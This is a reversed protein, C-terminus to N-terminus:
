VIACRLRIRDASKGFRASAEATMAAVALLTAPFNKM